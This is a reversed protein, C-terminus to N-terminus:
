SSVSGQDATLVKVFMADAFQAFVEEYEILCIYCQQVGNPGSEALDLKGHNKLPLSDVVSEPAPLSLVFSLSLPQRHIDDLGEFLAEALLVIRTSILLSMPSKLWSYTCVYAHVMLTSCLHLFLLENVESMFAVEFEKQSIYMYIHYSMTLYCCFSMLYSCFIKFPSGNRWCYVLTGMHTLTGIQHRLLPRRQNRRHSRSGHYGFGRGVGGNHLDDSLDLLWREHPGVDNGQGATFVIFPSDSHRRVSNRSLADWYLRRGNRRLDRNSIETISSTLMNSSISMVDVHLGAESRMDEESDSVHFGPGSCMAVRANDNGLLQLSAASDSVVSAFGSNSVSSARAADKPNQVSSADIRLNEHEQAVNSFHWDELSISTAAEQASDHAEVAAFSSARENVSIFEQSPLHNSCTSATDENNELSIDKSECCSRVEPRVAEIGNLLCTECSSAEANIHCHEKITDENSGNSSEPSSGSKSSAFRSSSGSTLSSDAISSRSEDNVPPLCEVSSIPSKQPHDEM